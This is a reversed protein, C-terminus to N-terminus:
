VALDVSMAVKLKTRRVLNADVKKNFLFEEGKVGIAFHCNQRM